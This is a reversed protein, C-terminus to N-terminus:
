PLPQSAADDAEFAASFKKQSENEQALALQPKRFKLLTVIGADPALGLLFRPM